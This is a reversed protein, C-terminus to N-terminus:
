HGYGGPKPPPVNIKKALEEALKQGGEESLTTPPVTKGSVEM